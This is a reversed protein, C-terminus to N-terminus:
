CNVMLYNSIKVFDHVSLQEARSSLAINLALLNDKSCFNKLANSITKRRQSFAATVLKSFHKYDIVKDIQSNGAEIIRKNDKVLLPTSLNIFLSAILNILSKSIM